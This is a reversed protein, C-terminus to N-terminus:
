HPLSQSRKVWLLKKTKTKIIIIEERNKFNYVEIENKSGVIM